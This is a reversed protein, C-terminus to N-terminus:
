RNFSMIWARVREGDNGGSTRVTRVPLPAQRQRRLMAAQVTYRRM